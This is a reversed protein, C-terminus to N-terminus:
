LRASYRPLVVRVVTGGDEGPDIAVTGLLPRAREEIEELSARRREGAGDDAITTVISGDASHDIRVAITSPPGRRIAQNLAERIIQYLAVQAKEALVEAAEIDLDIQVANSIGLGEALAGIAPRFGQDRLVVPEINFSLDRLSRITDRHRELARGIVLKAEDLRGSEVSSLAADLMLAIGSLSQVPGDHLFLALRRREDQEATILQESLRTREAEAAEEEIRLRANECARGAIDALVAARMVDWREFPRKRELLLAGISEGQVNLGVVLSKPDEDERSTPTTLSARADFLVEAQVRVQELVADPDRAAAIVGMADVLAELFNAQDTLSSDGHRWQRGRVV